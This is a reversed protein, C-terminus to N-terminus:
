KAQRFTLFFEDQEIQDLARHTILPYLSLWILILRDVSFLELLSDSFDM